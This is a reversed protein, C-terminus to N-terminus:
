VFLFVIDNVQHILYSIPSLQDIFQYSLFSIDSASESSDLCLLLGVAVSCSNFCFHDNPKNVTVNPVVVVVVVESVVPKAAATLM